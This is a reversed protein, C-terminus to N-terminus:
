EHEGSLSEFPASLEFTMTSSMLFLFRFGEGPCPLKSRLKFLCSGVLGFGLLLHVSSKYFVPGYSDERVAKFKIAILM